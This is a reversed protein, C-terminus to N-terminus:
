VLGRSELTVNSPSLKAVDQKVGSNYLQTQSNIEVIHDPSSINALLNHKNNM